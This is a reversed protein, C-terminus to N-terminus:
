AKRNKWVHIEAFFVTAAFGRVAPNTAGRFGFMKSGRKADFNWGLTDFLFVWAIVTISFPWLVVARFLLRPDEAPSARLAMIVSFAVVGYIWYNILEM